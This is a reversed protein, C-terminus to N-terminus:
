PKKNATAAAFAKVIEEWLANGTGDKDMFSRLETKWPRHWAWLDIGDAGAELPTRIFAAVQNRATTADGPYRDQRFSLSASRSYILFPLPLLSRAKVMGKRMADADNNKLNMALEFGDVYGTEYLRVLVDNTGNKYVDDTHAQCSTQGPLGCTLEWDDVDVIVPMGPIEQHFVGGTSRLYAISQKPSLGQNVRDAVRIASISGPHAKVQRIIANVVKDIPKGEVFNGKEDFEVIVALGAARADKVLKHDGYRVIVGNFAKGLQALDWARDKFLYKGSGTNFHTKILPKPLPAAFPIPLARASAGNAVPTKSSTGSGGSSAPGDGRSTSEMGSPAAAVGMPIGALLVVCALALARIMVARPKM